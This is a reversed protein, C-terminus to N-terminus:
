LDVPASPGLPKPELFQALGVRACQKERTTRRITRTAPAARDREGFDQLLRAFIKDNETALFFAAAKIGEVETEAALIFAQFFNVQRRDSGATNGLHNDGAAATLADPTFVALGAGACEFRQVADFVDGSERFNVLGVFFFTM